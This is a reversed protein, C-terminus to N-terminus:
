RPPIIWKTLIGQSLDLTRGTSKASDVFFSVAGVCGRGKHNLKVVGNANSVGSVHKDMWYEDMFRGKLTVGPLRKGTEDTITLTSTVDNTMRCTSVPKAVMQLSAVRICAKSCPEVPFLRVGRAAKGIGASALIHGKNNLSSASYIPTADYAPSLKASLSEGLGDPGAAIIGSSGVTGLIDSNNNIAGIGYRSLHGTGFPSLLQWEGTAAVYRYFYAINQSGNTIVFRAQDGTDNIQASAEPSFGKPPLTNPTVTNPTDLQYWSGLLAVTGNPSIALPIENPFGLTTLDKLGGVPDWVFPAANPPGIAPETSYGVVRNADDIGAVRAITNGPLLGITHLTYGTPTPEWAVPQPGFGVQAISASGAIWGASNIGSVSISSYDTPAPLPIPKGKGKPWVVLTSETLCSPYTPFCSSVKSINGVIDGADNMLSGGGSASLLQMGYTAATATNNVGIALLGAAIFIMPRTATSYPPLTTTKM